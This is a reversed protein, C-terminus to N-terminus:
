RYKSTHSQYYFSNNNKTFLITFIIHHLFREVLFTVAITITINIQVSLCWAFLGTREIFLSISHNNRRYIHIIIGTYGHCDFIHPPFGIKVIIIINIM